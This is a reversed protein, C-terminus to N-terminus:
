AAKTTAQLYNVDLDYESLSWEWALPNLVMGRQTKLTLDNTAFHQAMESPKLFKKWEHTGRPLWRMVYEAGVIAMLYSKPTRNITSFFALGGPKVLKSVSQIFLDVDAVHEVIELATVIDFQEGAEALSEATGARYDITLESSAAHLKAIKINKESADVGVVTAGLRALPECLLGGGCGIDLVRLGKLPTNTEESLAFHALAEDRVFRMRVPNLQHLPKFKGNPDWWEDAMRSFKEVESADITTTTM